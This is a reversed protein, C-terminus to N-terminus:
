AHYYYQHHHYCETTYWLACQLQVHVADLQKFHVAIKNKKTDPRHIILPASRHLFFLLNSKTHALAHTELFPFHIFIDLVPLKSEIFLPFSTLYNSFNGSYDPKNAISHRAWPLYQLSNYQSLSTFAKSSQASAFKPIEKWNNRILIVLCHFINM